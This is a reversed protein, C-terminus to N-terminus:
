NGSKNKSEDWKRLWNIADKWSTYITRVAWKATSFWWALIDAASSWAKKLRNKGQQLRHATLKKKAALIEADESWAKESLKSLWALAFTWWAALVNFLSDCTGKVVKSLWNWLEEHWLEKERSDRYNLSNIM